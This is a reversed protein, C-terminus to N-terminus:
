KKKLEWAVCKTFFETSTNTDCKRIANYYPNELLEIREVEFASKQFILDEVIISFHFYYASVAITVGLVMGALLYTLRCDLRKFLKM